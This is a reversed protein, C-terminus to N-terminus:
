AAQRVLTELGARFAPAGGMSPHRVKAFGVVGLRGLTRAAINGVAVIRAGMCLSLVSLLVQKGADLEAVTPARNSYPNGPKHPHWAFTNWLFTSNHIGLKYLAKWVVTASPESWPTERTSLRWQCSVRPIAGEMILRESTFPVGSVRCGQYGPAEGILLFLPRPRSPTPWSFHERLLQQRTGHGSRYLDTPDTEGWPNFVNPARFAALQQIIHDISM